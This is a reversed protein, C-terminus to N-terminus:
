PPASHPLNPEGAYEANPEKIRLLYSQRDESSFEVKDYIESLSLICGISDIRVVADLGKTATLLWQGGTQRVFHEITPDDQWLLLYDTLSDVTRYHDFKRGRDYAETSESLVEIVVTPNLLTNRQKDDFRAPGCVVSADPYTYLGTHSVKVRLDSGHAKCSRGKLQVALSALTNVQITSHRESAGAMAYVEGRYYESKTEAERELELYEEPSIYAKYVAQM